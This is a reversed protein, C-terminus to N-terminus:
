HPRVRWCPLVLVNWCNWCCSVLARPCPSRMPRRVTCPPRCLVAYLADANVECNLQDRVFATPPVLCLQQTMGLEPCHLVAAKRSTTLMSVFQLWRRRRREDAHSECRLSAVAGGPPWGARLEVLEEKTEEKSEVSTDIGVGARRQLLGDLDAGSGTTRVVWLEGNRVAMTMARAMATFGEHDHGKWGLEIRAELRAVAKRGVRLSCGWKSASIRETTLKCLTNTTHTRQRAGHGGRVGRAHNM